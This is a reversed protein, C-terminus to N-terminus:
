IHKIIIKELEEIKEFHRDRTVLIMNNEIVQSAIMLDALALSKGLSYYKHKLKSLVKATNKTTQLVYFKEVFDMAKQRKEPSKKILGFIFEFYNIFTLTPPTLSYETIEKLEEVINKKNAEFEILVDTDLVINM